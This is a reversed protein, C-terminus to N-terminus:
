LDKEEYLKLIKICMDKTVSGKIKNAENTIFIINDKTYGKSSDLRDVSVANAYGNFRRKKSDEARECIMKVSTLRCNYGFQKKHEEFLNIFEDETLHCMHKQKEEESFKKYRKGKLKHKINLYCGKLYGRETNSYITHSKKNCKKCYSQFGDYRNKHKWFGEEVNQYEIKCEPCTKKM